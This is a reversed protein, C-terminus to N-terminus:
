KHKALLKKIKKTTSPPIVLEGKHLKYKRTAKAVGGTKMAAIQRNGKAVGSDIAGTAMQEAQKIGHTASRELAGGARRAIKYLGGVFRKIPKSSTIKRWTRM